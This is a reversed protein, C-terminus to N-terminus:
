GMAWTMLGRKRNGGAIRIHEGSDMLTPWENASVFRGDPLRAMGLLHLRIGTPLHDWVSGAVHKWGIGPRKRSM